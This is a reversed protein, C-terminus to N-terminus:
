GVKQVQNIERNKYMRGYDTLFCRSGNQLPQEIEMCNRGIYQQFYNVVWLENASLETDKGM